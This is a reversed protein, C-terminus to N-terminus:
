LVASTANSKLPFPTTSPNSKPWNRCLNPTTIQASCFSPICKAGESMTQSKAYPISPRGDPAYVNETVMASSLFSALTSNGLAKRRYVCHM